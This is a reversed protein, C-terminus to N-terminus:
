MMFVQALVWLFACQAPFLHCLVSFHGLWLKLLMTATEFHSVSSRHSCGFWAYVSLSFCVHASNIYGYCFVGPLWTIATRRLTTKWMDATAGALAKGCTGIPKGLIRMGPCAWIFLPCMELYTVLCPLSSEGINVGGCNLLSLTCNILWRRWVYTKSSSCRKLPRAKYFTGLYM